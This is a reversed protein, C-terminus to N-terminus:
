PAPATRRYLFWTGEEAVFAISPDAAFIADPRSRARVLFWDFFPGHRLVRFREPTWEWRLPVPPPVVAGPEAPDRYVVPSNRWMAFHFSLWGGKDAQVWAPLHIFPTHTAVSGGHELVLYLLKPAQPLRAVIRAFDATAHDFARYARATVTGLPVLAACMAAVALARLWGARPLDPLLGLGVYVAATAERPYVYWWLGIEMPLTLYLGLFVAASAAVVAHAGADFWLERRTRRRLRGDLVLVVALGLALALLWYAASQAAAAEAPDTLSRYLHEGLAGLRKPDPALKGLSGGVEAPRVLWWAVFLASAGLVPLVVPRVRRTAPYLCVASGVVAAIAFPFRFVHTFFVAVLALALGLTAARSPRDLARLALGVVAAFLGLAGMFNLFGWSTLGGWVLGLGPLGLLPSKRMGWALVALGAPLLALMLAAAVKVAALPGVFLMFFAALGYFSVYPVAFPQLEFQEQFHWAPDFYHRLASANAAHFPLDTMMPYRAALFPGVVVYSVLALAVAGLAIGLAPARGRGALWARWGLWAGPRGLSSM